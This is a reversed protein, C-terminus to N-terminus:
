HYENLPSRLSLVADREGSFYCTLSFFRRTTRMRLGIITANHQSYVSYGSCTTCILVFEYM